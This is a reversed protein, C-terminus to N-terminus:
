PTLKTIAEDLTTVINLITILGTTELISHVQKPLHCLQVSGDIAEVAQVLTIIERIGISSLLGVQEMKIIFHVHGQDLLDTKAKNFQPVSHHTFDGVLTLIAANERIDTKIEM